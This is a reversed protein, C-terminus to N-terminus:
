CELVMLYGRLGTERPYPISACFEEELFRQKQEQAAAVPFFFPEAQSVPHAISARERVGLQENKALL